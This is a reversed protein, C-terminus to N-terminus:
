PMQPLQCHLFYVLNSSLGPDPLQQPDAGFDMPKRDSVVITLVRQVGIRM